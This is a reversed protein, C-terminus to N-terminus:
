AGALEAPTAVMNRRCFTRLVSFFDAMSDLDADSRLEKKLVRMLTQRQGRMRELRVDKRDVQVNGTLLMGSGNKAFARASM